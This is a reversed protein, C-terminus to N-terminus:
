DCYQCEIKGNGYCTKCFGSTGSGSGFCSPCVNKGVGGCKSCIEDSFIGGNNGHLIVDEDGTPEKQSSENKSPKETKSASDEKSSAAGSLVSSNDNEIETIGEVKENIFERFDPHSFAIALIIVLLLACMCASLKIFKILKRKLM